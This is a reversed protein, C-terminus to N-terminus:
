LEIFYIHSANYIIVLLAVCHWIHAASTTISTTQYNATARQNFNSIECSLCTWFQLSITYQFFNAWLPPSFQDHTAVVLYRHLNGQFQWCTRVGWEDFSSAPDLILRGRVKEHASKSSSKPSLSVYVYPWPLHVILLFTTCARESVYVAPINTNARKEELVHYGICWNNM